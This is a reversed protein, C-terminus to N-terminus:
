EFAHSSKQDAASCLVCAFCFDWDDRLTQQTIIFRIPCTPDFLSVGELERAM